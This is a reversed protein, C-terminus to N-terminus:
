FLIIITKAFRFGKKLSLSTESTITTKIKYFRYVLIVNTATQLILPIVARSVIHILDRELVYQSSCLTLTSNNGNLVDFSIKTELHFFFGFFNIGCLIFFLGLVALLNRKVNLARDTRANDLLLFM